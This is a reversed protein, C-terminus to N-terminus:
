PAVKSWLGTALTKDVPWGILDTQARTIQCFKAAGVMKTEPGCPLGGVVLGVASMTPASATGGLAYSYPGMTLLAPPPATVDVVKSVIVSPASELGLTATLYWEQIGVSLNTRTFSCTSSTALKTKTQGKLGGYIAYTIASGAPIATGDEYTTVAPCTIKADTAHAVSVLISALSLAFALAWVAPLNVRDKM